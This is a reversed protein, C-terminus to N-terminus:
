SRQNLKQLCIMEPSTVRVLAKWLLTVNLRQAGRGGGRTESSLLFHPSRPILMQCSSLLHSQAVVSLIGARTLLQLVKLVLISFIKKPELSLIKPLATCHLWGLASSGLQCHKGCNWREAM